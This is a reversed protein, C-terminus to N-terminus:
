GGATVEPATDEPADAVHAKLANVAADLNKTSTEDGNFRQVAESLEKRAVYVPNGLDTSTGGRHCVAYVDLMMDIDRDM